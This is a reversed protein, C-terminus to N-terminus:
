REAVSRSRGLRWVGLTIVIAVFTGALFHDLGLLPQLAGALWGHTGTHGEHAALALPTALTLALTLLPRRPLHIMEDEEFNL